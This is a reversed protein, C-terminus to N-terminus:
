TIPCVVPLSPYIQHCPAFLWHTRELRPVEVQGATQPFSTQSDPSVFLLQACSQWCDVLADVLVLVLAVVVVFLVLLVPL